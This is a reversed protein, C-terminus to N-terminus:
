SVGSKNKKLVTKTIVESKLMTIYLRYVRRHLENKYFLHLIIIKVDTLM